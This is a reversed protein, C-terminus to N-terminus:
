RTMMERLVKRADKLNKIPKRGESSSESTSSMPPTEAKGSRYRKIVTQEFDSVIKKLDATMRRVEAPKSIDIENAPNGVGMLLKAFDHYEEPLDESTKIFSEVNRTFDKLVRQAQKSEKENETRSRQQDRLERKERKLREITEEFTEDAELKQAEQEALYAKTREFEEAKKVMGDLDIDAYKDLVSASRDILEQLEDINNAGVKAMIGDLQKEAARAAKWKPDKDFPAPKDNGKDTSGAPPDAKQGGDPSPDPSNGEDKIKSWNDPVTIKIQTEDKIGTM